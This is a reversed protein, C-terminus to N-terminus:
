TQTSQWFRSIGTAVYFVISILNFVVVCYIVILDTSCSRFATHMINLLGFQHNPIIILIINDMHYLHSGMHMYIYAHEIYFQIQLEMLHLANMMSTKTVWIDSCCEHPYLSGSVHLYAINFLSNNEQTCLCSSEKIITTIFCHSKNIENFLFIGCTINYYLRRYHLTM